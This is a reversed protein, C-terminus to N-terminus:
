GGAPNKEAALRQAEGEIEHRLVVLDLVDHSAVSGLFRGTDREMIPIVGLSHDAM